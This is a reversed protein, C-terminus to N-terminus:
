CCAIMLTVAVGICVTGRLVMVSSEFFSVISSLGVFGCLKFELQANQLGFGSAAADDEGLTLFFFFSPCSPFLFRFVLNTRGIESWLRGGLFIL